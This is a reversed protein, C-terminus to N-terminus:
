ELYMGNYGGTLVFHRGIDVRGPFVCKKLKNSYVLYRKNCKLDNTANIAEGFHPYITNTHDNLAPKFIKLDEFLKQM